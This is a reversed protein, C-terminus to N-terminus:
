SASISARATASAGGRRRLFIASHDGLEPLFVLHTLSIRLIAEFPGSKKPVGRELYRAIMLDLQGHRRLATTVLRNALARDRGDAIEALSFLAFNAGQARSQLRDAALSGSRWGRRTRRNKTM